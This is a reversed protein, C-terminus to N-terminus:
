FMRNLAPIGGQVEIPVLGARRVADAGERTCIVQARSAPHEAPVGNLLTPRGAAFAHVAKQTRLDYITLDADAGVALTGKRHSLGLMRAPLTSTKRAFEVLSLASLKVLSLGSELIVNRPIGGGDTGIGDILFTGDARKELAFYARSCFPNVGDFSGDVPLGAATRENFYALGERGEAIRVGDPQSILIGLRRDLVAAELGARDASFGFAKLNAALIGSKSQGDATFGLPCGNRASLYSETVIEPHAKLLDAARRCEEQVSATRGRCYANLHALHFPHGEALAVAEEVGEINSGHATSGAHWAMYISRRAATRVMSASAEPTLPFHGGLLKVGFAGAQLSETMFCSLAEESPDQNDINVGPLVANLVAINLGTGAAQAGAFVKEPSGSMDVATTVGARAVMRHSSPSVALHLHTDIIGPQLVLGTCDIVEKAPADISSDIGAIAGAEIAADATQVTGNIPDVALAGRLLYDFM